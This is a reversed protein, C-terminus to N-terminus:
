KNKEADLRLVEAEREAFSEDLEKDLEGSEIFEAIEQKDAEIADEVEADIWAQLDADTMAM